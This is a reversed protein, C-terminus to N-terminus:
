KILRRKPSLIAARGEVLRRQLQASDELLRQAQVTPKRLRRLMDLVQRQMAIAQEGEAIRREIAELSPPPHRAKM